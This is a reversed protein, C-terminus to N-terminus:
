VTGGIMRWVDDIKKRLQRALREFGDSTGHLEDWWLSRDPGHVYDDTGIVGLLKVYHV